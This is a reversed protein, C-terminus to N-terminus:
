KIFWETGDCYITISEYQSTLDHTANGNITEAGNGDITVDGAGADVKTVTIIRGTSSAAAPLTITIGGAGGTGNIISDAALVTYDADKAKVDVYLSKIRMAGQFYNDTVDSNGITVTNSGNGSLLYGIVTENTRGATSARAQSGVYICQTPTANVTAGDALFTGSNRGLATNNNTNTLYRLSQHGVAVNGVGTTTELLVAWGIATLQHGTTLSSLVQQGVGTCCNHEYDLVAATRAPNGSGRGLFVNHNATVGPPAYNHLFRGGDKNVYGWANTGDYTSNPLNINGPITVSGNGDITVSSDQVANGGAGNWRVVATNTSAAITPIAGAQSATVSHPNATDSVHSLPAYITDLIEKNTPSAVHTNTGQGYFFNTATNRSGGTYRAYIKIGCYNGAAITKEESFSCSVFISRRTNTIPDSLTSTCLLNVDAGAPSIEWLEFYIRSTRSQPHDEGRQAQGALIYNGAPFTKPGTGPQLWGGLLFNGDANETVTATKEGGATPATISNLLYAGIGAADDTLYCNIGINSVAIDVFLRDILHHEDSIDRTDDLLPVGNIIIQETSQDLKLCNIVEDGEIEGWEQALTIVQEGGAAFPAGEAGNDLNGDAGFPNFPGGGSAYDLSNTSYRSRTIAM